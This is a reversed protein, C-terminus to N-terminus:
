PQLSMTKMSGDVLQVSVPVRMVGNKGVQAAGTVTGFLGSYEAVNLLRTQVKAGIFYRSSM